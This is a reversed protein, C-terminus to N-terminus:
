LIITYNRYEIPVYIIYNIISALVSMKIRGFPITGNESSFPLSECLYGAGMFIIYVFTNHLNSVAFDISKLRAYTMNSICMALLKNHIPAFMM